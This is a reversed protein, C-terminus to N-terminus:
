KEIFNALLGNVFKASKEDGYRKALEVAENVSSKAPVKEMYLIETLAVRLVALDTAVIRGFQWGRLNKKIEDDVHERHDLYCQLLTELYRLDPKTVELPSATLVARKEPLPADAGASHASQDSVDASDSAKLLEEYEGSECLEVYHSLLKAFDDM